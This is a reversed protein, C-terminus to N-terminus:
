PWVQATGCYIKSVPTGGLMVALANNLVVIGRMDVNSSRIVHAAAQVLLFAVGTLILDQDSTTAHEASDIALIHQQTLAVNTSLVVHVGAAINLTLGGSFTPLNDATHAHVGAAVVLVHVQTLTVNASTHGHVADAVTLSFAEVLKINDSTIAHASAAVVLDITAAVNSATHLHYGDSVILAPTIITNDAVHAHTASQVLLPVGLPAVNDAIHAHTASQVVISVGLPAVNDATHDHVGPQVSLMPVGSLSVEQSEHLHLANNVLLGPTIIVDPSTVAHAASQVAPDVVLTPSVSTHAHVCHFVILDPVPYLVTSDASHAHSANAVILDVVLNVNGASHSHAANQIYLDVGLAVNAATHAQAASAVVLDPVPYLVTAQATHAHAASDVAILHLQTLDVNTATHQHLGDQIALDGSMQLTVNSSSIGQVASQVTLNVVENLKLDPVISAPNSLTWTRGRADLWTTGNVYEAPDMRWQVAGANPNTGARMEVWYFDGKPLNYPSNQTSTPGVWLPVNMPFPPKPDEYWNTSWPGIELWTVRDFSYYGWVEFFPDTQVVTAWYPAYVPGAKSQWVSDNAMGNLDSNGTWVVTSTQGPLSKNTIAWSEPTVQWNGTGTWASQAALMVDQLNVVKAVLTFSPSPPVGPNPTSIGGVLPNHYPGTTTFISHSSDLGRLLPIQVLVVPGTTHAQVAPQVVLDVILAVNDSTVANVAAQVTLDVVLAINAATHAHVAPQVVLVVDVAVNAATHAHAADAVVLVVDIAVNTATHAHVGSAVTIATGALALAVDDATHGHIGDQVTLVHVQALKTDLVVSAPNSLTWTRGRVDTWDTGSSYDAIDCRWILTGGNPDNGARVEVWHIFGDATGNFAAAYGVILPQTSAFPVVPADLWDDIIPGQWTVGDNSVYGTVVYKPSTQVTISYYEYAGSPLLGVWSEYNGSGTESVHTFVNQSGAWDNQQSRSLMIDWSAQTDQFRGHKVLNTDRWNSVRGVVTWVPSPPLGPNPTSISGVGVNNYVLPVFTHFCNRVTLVVYNLVVNAATHGHQANAVLLPIEVAVNAATHAHAANAPALVVYNTTVNDAAHAHAASQVTIDVGVAVNAATHAHTAGQVALDVVLAAVADTTAHLANAVVLNYQIVEVLPGVNDAAHAHAGNQVVLVTPINEVLVVTDSTPTNVAAANSVTWTKGRADVWSTGSVYNDLDFRFLITGGKPDTGTRLEVWYIADDFINTPYTAGPGTGGIVMPDPSDSMGVSSGASSSSVEPYTVGGDTSEYARSIMTDKVYSVALYQAANRNVGAPPTLYILSQSPYQTGSGHSVHVIQGTDGKRILDFSWNPSQLNQSAITQSASSGSQPGRIKFVWVFGTTPWGTFPDPTTARSVAPRLSPTLDTQVVFNHQCNQVVLVTAPVETLTVNTAAAQHTIANAYETTWTRGLADVWTNGSVHESADFRWFVTGGAPDIGSRIEFWYINGSWTNIGGKSATQPSGIRIVAAADFIPFPTPSKTTTYIQTWTVGDDTSRYGWYTHPNSRFAIAQLEEAMTIPNSNVVNDTTEAWAGTTSGMLHFRARYTPDYYEAGYRDVQWSYNVAERQGALYNWANGAGYVPGMVRFVCVFDPSPMPGPDPTTVSGNIFPNLYHQATQQSVHSHSCNDVVLDVPPTTVLNITPVSTYTMGATSGNRLVRFRLTDGNALDAAILKVSFLIETYNNGSWGVNQVHGAESVKGATFTGTGGTLRNTTAQGETLNPNDYPFVTAATAFLQFPMDYTDGFYNWYTNAPVTDYVHVTWNGQHTGNSREFAEVYNTTQPVGEVVVFYPTGPTFRFGTDPFTFTVWGATTSVSSATVPNSSLLPTPGVGASFSPRGTSGFTGVHPLITATLNGTPTGVKRIWFMARTPTTLSGLFSQGIGFTDGNTNGTIKRTTMGASVDMFSDMTTEGPPAVNVWAGSGNREWQLQFDDSASITSANTSQLRVRIMGYGDGTSPNGTVATNQAALSAAGSETGADDFFQYAAQTITPDPEGSIVATLAVWDTSPCTANYTQAGSATAVKYQFGCTVASADSGSATNATSDLTAWSGNLTDSDGTVTGRTEAAFVGIVLDNVNVAGSVVSPATSTGSASVAASTQGFTGAAGPVGTFVNFRASKAVIAGSFTLTTAAGTARAVTARCCILAGVVGAGSSGQGKQIVTTYVNATGDSATVTPTTASLNDAAVNIVILDGVAVATLNNTVSLTTSSAASFGGGSAGKLAIAM